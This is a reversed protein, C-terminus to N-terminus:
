YAARRGFGLGDRNATAYSGRSGEHGSDGKPKAENVKITRGDFERGHLNSIADAAEESSAMLVFGFGKPKGTDRDTILRCSDVTGYQSFLDTVSAETSTFALNGVYINNGM